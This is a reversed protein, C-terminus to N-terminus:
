DEFSRAGGKFGNKAQAWLFKLVRADDYCYGLNHNLTSFCHKQCTKKMEGLQKADFHFNDINGWDYSAPYMTFCPAVTGDTILAPNGYHVGMAGSGAPDSMCPTIAASWGAQSATAFDHFQATVRRLLALDQNVDAGLSTRSSELFSASIRTGPALPASARDCAWGTLGLLPALVAAAAIRIRTNSM